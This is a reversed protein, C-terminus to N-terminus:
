SAGEEGPRMVVVRQVVQQGFPLWLELLGRGYSARANDSDIAGALPVEVLFAGSALEMRHIRWQGEPPGLKRAGHIEVRNPYLNVHLDDLTMGAIEVVIQVGRDNEYINLPPQWPRPEFPAFPQRIAVIRIAAHQREPM